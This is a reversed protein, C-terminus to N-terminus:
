GEGLACETGARFRQIPVRGYLKGDVSLLSIGRSSSYAYMDGKGIYLNVICAGCWDVPVIGIDFNVNLLRVLWDLM